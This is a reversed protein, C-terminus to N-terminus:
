TTDNAADLFGNRKPPDGDVAIRLLRPMRRRRADSVHLKTWKKLDPSSFLAFTNGDLYLAMIWEQQARVLGGQPRPQRWSTSRCPIAPTSPGPAAAITAIPSASRSRNGKSERLDRRRVHLHVCHVKEDGTQFGATNDGDVVASGSFITGTRRARDRQGTAELPGPRPQRCPGLDHEGNTGFPNHQFFLHYEGKYYCWAM